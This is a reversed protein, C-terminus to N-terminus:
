SWANGDVAARAIKSWRGLRPNVRAVKRLCAFSGKELGSPPTARVNDHYAVGTMDTILVADIKLTKHTFAAAPQLMDVELLETLM